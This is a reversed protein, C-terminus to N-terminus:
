QIIFIINNKQNFIIGMSAWIFVIITPIIININKTNYSIIFPVISIIIFLIISIIHDKVNGYYKMVSGLNLCSALIVWASYIAFTITIINITNNKYLICIVVITLLILIISSVIINKGWSYLWLINLVSSLIYLLIINDMEKSHKISIYLLLSYIVSWIAFTFPAPTIDLRYKDSTSKINGSLLYNFIIMIITVIFANM